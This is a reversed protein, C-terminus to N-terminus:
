MKNRPGSVRQRVRQAKAFVLLPSFAVMAFLVMVKMVMRARAVTCVSQRLLPYRVAVFREITFALVLWVSLFSCVGTIYVVLQCSGHQNFLDVDVMSLWVIFLAMLFISDSIALASLYYSSSLKRLKTRFFVVVSMGNGLIGLHVLIPTYILQFLELHGLSHHVDWEPNTLNTFNFEETILTGSM